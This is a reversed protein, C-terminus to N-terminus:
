ANPTTVAVSSRPAAPFTARHYCTFRTNSIPIIKKTEKDINDDYIEDFTLTNDALYFYLIRELSVYGNNNRINKTLISRYQEAYQGNNEIYGDTINAGFFNMIM